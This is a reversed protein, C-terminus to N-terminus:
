QLYTNLLKAASFLMSRQGKNTKFKATTIANSAKLRTEHNHHIVLNKFLIQFIIILLTCFCVIQSHQLASFNSIVTAISQLLYHSTPFPVSLTLRSHQCFTPKSIIYLSYHIKEKEQVNNITTNLFIMVSPMNKMNQWMCLHQCEPESLSINFGQYLLFIESNTPSVQVQTRAPSKSYSRQAM